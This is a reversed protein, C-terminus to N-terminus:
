VSSDSTFLNLIIIMTKGINHAPFFSDLNFMALQVFTSQIIYVTALYINILEVVAVFSEIHKFDFHKNSKGNRKQREWDWEWEMKSQAYTSKTTHEDEKLFFFYGM